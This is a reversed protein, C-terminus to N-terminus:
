RANQSRSSFVNWDLRDTKHLLIALTVWFIQVGVAASWLFWSLKQVLVCLLIIISYDRSTLGDIMSQIITNEWGGRQKGREETKEAMTVFPFSFAAGVALAGGFLPAYTGGGQKWVAVGVGVFIAIHVVTDLTVDLWAGFPSELFKVRAVEGDICDMVASFQLLLGGLIPWVYGGGWFFIAGILGISCSVVTIHNPTLSTRLFLRTLPRSLKRNLYADVLGDKPNPLSVLLSKEAEPAAAANPVHHLFFNTAPFLKIEAGWNMGEALFPEVQLRTLAIQLERLPFLVLGYGIDKALVARVDHPAASDALSRVLGVSFLTQVRFVVCHEAITPTTTEERKADIVDKTVPIDQTDQTVWVIHSCLRQDNKLSRRFPEVKEASADSVVYCTQAGARQATFIARKLLSLGGLMTLPPCDETTPLLIVAATIM